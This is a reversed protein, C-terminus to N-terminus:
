YRLAGLRYLRDYLIHKRLYQGLAHNVETDTVVRGHVRSRLQNMERTGLDQLSSSTKQHPHVRFAGLFRPLRHIRAGADRFRLLLDWDIAFRFAEDIHGGAKDWIRRRWFLTEQPVFDAWSLVENDHRPLVWRGIDADYEDIVVRHGYVVDVEPHAAFYAGVYHLTGPLLMDDSNLYAMIEGTTNSFGINIGNAFGTDPRSEVRTLLEAYRELVLPTEDSSVADQVIYELRPYHQDLVSKLTREIFSGQNLSPTVISLLPASQSLKPVQLYREPISLLRPRYQYLTGLRPSRFRRLQESFSWFRYHELARQQEEIVALRAAAASAADTQLRQALDLQGQFELQIQQRAREYNQTAEDLRAEIRDLMHSQRIVLEILAPGGDTADMEQAAQAAVKEVTTQFPASESLSPALGDSNAAVDEEADATLEGNPAANRALVREADQHELVEIRLQQDDIVTLRNRCENAFMKAQDVLRTQAEAAASYVIDSVTAAFDDHIFVANGWDGARTGGNNIQLVEFEDNRKIAAFTSYGHERMWDVVEQLSYPGPGVTEALDDWYELMIVAPRLHGMGQVVAFDSRETDVKLVGVHAPLKGDRVLSDLTRCQVQIEGVRRLTPTEDFAFLSHYADPREGTKDEALYLTAPEDYKGVAVDLVAVSEDAGFEAFLAAVNVPHPEIAFVHSAGAQLLARTFSGREAGVDIVIRNQLRSMIATLLRIDTDQDYAATARGSEKRETPTLSAFEGHPPASM